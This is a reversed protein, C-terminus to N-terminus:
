RRRRERQIILKRQQITVGDIQIFIRYTGPKWYKTNINFNLEEDIALKKNNVPKSVIDAVPSLVLVNYVATKKAKFNFQEINNTLSYKAKTAIAIKTPSEKKNQAFAPPTAIILLCSFFLILTAYNFFNKRAPSSKLNAGIAANQPQLTASAVFYRFAPTSKIRGWSDRKLFNLLFITQQIFNM